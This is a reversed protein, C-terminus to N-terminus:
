KVPSGAAFTQEHVGGHRRLVVTVDPQSGGSFLQGPATTGKDLHIAVTHSGFASLPLTGTALGQSGVVDSTAPGPCRTRLPDPGGAQDPSNVAAEVQRGRRSLTLSLDGLRVNDSCVTGGSRSLSESATGAGPRWDVSGYVPIGAPNGSRSLGLAALLDRRPRRVPAIASLSASGAHSSPFLTETGTLGCADLAACVDQDPSAAFPVAIRGAVSTVSFNVSAFRERPTRHRPPRLEEPVSRQRLPSGIRLRISSVVTGSLGHTAFPRNGTLDITM